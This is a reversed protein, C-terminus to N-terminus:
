GACNQALICNVLSVIDLVNYDGDGNIDCACAYEWDACNQGLICYVLTVVDLVNFSGDGQTDGVEVCHTFTYNIIHEGWVAGNDSYGLYKYKLSFEFGDPMNYVNDDEDFPFLLIGGTGDM